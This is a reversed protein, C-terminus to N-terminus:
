EDMDVIRQSEIRGDVYAVLQMESTFTLRHVLIPTEAGATARDPMVYTYNDSNIDLAGNSYVVLETLTEPLGRQENAYKVLWTVIEKMRAHTRFRQYARLGGLSSLFLVCAFIMVFIWGLWQWKREQRM